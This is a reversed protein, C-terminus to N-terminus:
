LGTTSPFHLVAGEELEEWWGGGGGGAPRGVDESGTVPAPAKARGGPRPDHHSVKFLSAKELCQWRM